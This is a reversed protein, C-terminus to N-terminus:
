SFLRKFVIKGSQIEFVVTYVRNNGNLNFSYDDGYQDAMFKVVDNTHRALLGLFRTTQQKLNANKSFEQYTDFFQNLTIENGLENIASFKM